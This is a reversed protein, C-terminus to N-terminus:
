TTCWDDNDTNTRGVEKTDGQKVALYKKLHLEKANNILQNLVAHQANQQAEEMLIYSEVESLLHLGESYLDEEAHEMDLEPRIDKDAEFTM